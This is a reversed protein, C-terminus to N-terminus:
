LKKIENSTLGTIKSIFKIDSGEKKLKLVMDKKEEAKGEKIGEKKGEKIGEKKGEKIGEKKGEKIGEEKIEKREKNKESNESAKNRLEDFYESLTEPTRLYSLMREEAMKIAENKEYLIQMTEKSTRKHFFLAFQHLKNDLDIIETNFLKPLEILHIRFKDTLFNNIEDDRSIHYTGHYNKNKKDEYDAIIIQIIEPIEKYQDGEELSNVIETSLYFTIRLEFDDTKEIQIEMNIKSNEGVTSKIDLISLKGKIRDVEQRTSRNITIQDIKPYGKDEFIANLLALFQKECGPMGLSYQVISDSLPNIEVNTQNEFTKVIDIIEDYSELSFFRECNDACYKNNEELL